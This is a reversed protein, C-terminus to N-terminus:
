DNDCKEDEEGCHEQICDEHRYAMSPAYYEKCVDCYCACTECFCKEYGWKSTELEFPFGINLRDCNVCVYLNTNKKIGNIHEVADTLSSSSM